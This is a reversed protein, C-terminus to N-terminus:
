AAVQQNWRGEEYAEQSLDLADAQKRYHAMKSKTKIHLKNWRKHLELKTKAKGAIFSKNWRKSVDRVIQAQPPSLM